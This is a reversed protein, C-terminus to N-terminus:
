LQLGISLRADRGDLGDGAGTKQILVGSDFGMFQWDLRHPDNPRM